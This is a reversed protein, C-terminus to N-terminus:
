TRVAAIKQRSFVMEPVPENFEAALRLLESMKLDVAGIEGRALRVAPIGVHSSLETVTDYGARLHRSIWRGVEAHWPTLETLEDDRRPGTRTRPISVGAQRAVKYIYGSQTRLKEAIAQVSMGEGLLTIVRDKKSVEEDM